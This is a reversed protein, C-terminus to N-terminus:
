KFRTRLEELVFDRFAAVKAPLKKASPHILWAAGSEVSYRPLVRM